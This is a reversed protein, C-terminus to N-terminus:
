GANAHLSSVEDDAAGQGAFEAPGAKHKRHPPQVPACARRRSRPRSAWPCRVRSFAPAPLPTPWIHQRRRRPLMANRSPRVGVSDASKRTGVSGRASGNPQAAKHSSTMSKRTDPRAPSGDWFRWGTETCESLLRSRFRQEIQPRRRRTPKSLGCSIEARDDLIERLHLAPEITRRVQDLAFKFERWSSPVPGARFTAGGPRFPVRM